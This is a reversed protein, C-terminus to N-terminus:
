SLSAAASAARRRFFLCSPHSAHQRPCPSLAVKSCLFPPSGHTPSHRRKTIDYHVSRHLAGYLDLLRKSRLFATPMCCCAPQFRRHDVVPNPVRDKNRCRKTCPEHLVIFLVRIVGLLLAIILCFVACLLSGSCNLM